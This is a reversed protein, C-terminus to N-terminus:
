DGSRFVLLYCHRAVGQNYNGPLGLTTRHRAIADQFTNGASYNGQGLSGIIGGSSSLAVFFDLSNGFVEHINWTGHVKPEMAARWQQYGMEEVRCDELVMAGQIVGRIPYDVCQAKLETLCAKELVTGKRVTVEVGQACLEEVMDRTTQSDLGSRSLTILRKAGLKALLRVAEKGLGGTGGIVLYSCDSKLKV